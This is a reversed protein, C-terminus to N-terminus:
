GRDELTLSEEIVRIQHDMRFHVVAAKIGTPAFPDGLDCGAQDSSGSSSLLLFPLGCGPDPLVYCVYECGLVVRDRYKQLVPVSNQFLKLFIVPFDKQSKEGQVYVIHRVM